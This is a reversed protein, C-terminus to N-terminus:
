QEIAPLLKALTLLCCLGTMRCRILIAQRNYYYGGATGAAALAAIGLGPHRGVTPSANEIESWLRQFPSCLLDSATENRAALVAGAGWIRHTLILYLFSEIHNIWFLVSGSTQPNQGTLVLSGTGVALAVDGAKYKPRLLETRLFALSAADTKAYLHSLLLMQKSARADAKVANLMERGAETPGCMVDVLQSAAYSVICDM